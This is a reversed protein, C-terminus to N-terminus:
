PMQLHFFLPDALSLMGTVCLLCADESVRLLGTWIFLHWWAFPLMAPTLCHM